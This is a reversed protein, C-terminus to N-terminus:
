ADGAAEQGAGQTVGLLWDKFQVFPPYSERGSPVVLYYGNGSATRVGNVAIVLTGAKLEEEVLFKPVLGIGMGASVAQILHSTLEYQPGLKLGGGTYGHKAFWDRWATPRSVVRLLPYQLLQDIMKIPGKRAQDASMVPVIEEALLPYTM